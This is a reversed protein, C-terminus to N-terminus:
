MHAAQKLSFFDGFALSEVDVWQLGVRLVADWRRGTGAHAILRRAIRIAVLTLFMLVINLRPMHRHRDSILRVSELAVLSCNRLLEEDRGRFM